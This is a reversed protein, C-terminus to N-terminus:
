APREPLHIPILRELEHRVVRGIARGAARPAARFREVQRSRREDRMAWACFHECNNTLFRYSREGLRSLAREVIERRDFRSADCRVRIGRGRAFREISVVEVPGRWLGHAFGAYHIVRGKGLYIGHHTYLARPTVLHSALPPEEGDALFWEHERAHHSRENM